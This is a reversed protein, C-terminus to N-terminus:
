EWVQRNRVLMDPTIPLRARQATPFRKAQESKIGWLVYELLPMKERFPDGQGSMIQLHRAASLYCKTSQHKMGEQALYAVYEYLNKETLPLPDIKRESCFKVYRNKETNYTRTTSPALSYKLYDQVVQALSSVDLQEVQGTGGGVGSTSSSATTRGQSDILFFCSLLADSRENLKGPVHSSTITCCFKAEVLTKLSSM